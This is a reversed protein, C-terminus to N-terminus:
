YVLLADPSNVWSSITTLEAHMYTSKEDMLRHFKNAASTIWQMRSTFDEVILDEPAVSKLSEDGASCAHSFVLEYTPMAWHVWWKREFRTWKNFDADKYILEQLISKQEHDAIALLHELQMNRRIKKDTTSEIQVVFNFGKELSKSPAFNKIKSISKGAWPLAKVRSKVPEILKDCDRKNLCAMGNFFNNPYHSYFWHAPAIDSFLWLNGQGLGNAVNHGDVTELTLKGLAYSANLQLTDLLCAVTKSAFAGLAMWYYRGLKAKDGGEETELHM